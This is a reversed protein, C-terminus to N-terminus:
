FLSVDDPAARKSTGKSPPAAPDFEAIQPEGAANRAVLEIRKQAADLKASCFAVLKIGEEYRELMEELPLADAEMQEVIQELRELANEFTAPSSSKEKM